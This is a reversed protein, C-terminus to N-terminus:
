SETTWRLAIDQCAGRVLSPCHSQQTFSDASEPYSFWDRRGGSRGDWVNYTNNNDPSIISLTNTAQQQKQKKSLLLKLQYTGCAHM